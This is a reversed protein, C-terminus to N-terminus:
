QFRSVEILETRIVPVIIKIATVVKVKILVDSAIFDCYKIIAAIKRENSEM